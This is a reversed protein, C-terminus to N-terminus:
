LWLGAYMTIPRRDLNMARQCHVLALNDNRAICTNLQRGVQMHSDRSQDDADDRFTYKVWRNVWGLFHVSQNMGRMLDPMKIM